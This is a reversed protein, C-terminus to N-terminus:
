GAAQCLGPGASPAVLAEEIATYLRQLEIPKSVHGDMGARLYQEVQYTMANATLALIPIRALGQRLEEARIIETAEVGDMVPM